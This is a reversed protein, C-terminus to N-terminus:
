AALAVGPPAASYREFFTFAALAEAVQAETAVPEVAGTEARGSASRAGRVPALRREGVITPEYDTRRGACAPRRM